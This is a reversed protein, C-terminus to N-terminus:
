MSAKDTLGDCIDWFPQQVASEVEDLVCIGILPSFGGFVGNRKSM